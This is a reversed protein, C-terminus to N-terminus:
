QKIRKPAHKPTHKAVPKPPEVENDDSDNESADSDDDLEDSDDDEDSEDSNAPPVYEENEDVVPLPGKVFGSGDDYTDPESQSSEGSDSEDSSDTKLADSDYESDSYDDIPREKPTYRVPQKILRGSRSRGIIVPKEEEVVGEMADDDNSGDDSFETSSLDTADDMEDDDSESAPVRVRAAVQQLYMQQQIQATDDTSPLPASSKVTTKKVPKSM